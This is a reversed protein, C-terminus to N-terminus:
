GAAECLLEGLFDVTAFLDDTTGTDHEPLARAMDRAVLDALQRGADDDALRGWAGENPGPASSGARRAVAVVCEDRVRARSPVPDCTAVHLQSRFEQTRVDIPVSGAPDAVVFCQGSVRLQAYSLPAAHPTMGGDIRFSVRRVASNV